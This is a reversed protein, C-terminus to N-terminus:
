FYIFYEEEKKDRKKRYHCLRFSLSFGIITLNKTPKSWAPVVFNNTELFLVCRLPSSFAKGQEKKM